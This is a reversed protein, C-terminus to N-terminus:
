TSTETSRARHWQMLVRCCQVEDLRFTNNDPQIMINIVASARPGNYFEGPPQGLFIKGRDGRRINFLREVYMVVRHCEPTIIWLVVPWLWGGTVEPRYQPVQVRKGHRWYLEM